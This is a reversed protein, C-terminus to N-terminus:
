DCRRETRTVKRGDDRETTTTVSRCRSKPGVTIGRPGVGITVDSDRRDRRAGEDRDRGVQVDVQALKLSAAKAPTAGVCLPAATFVVAATVAALAIRMM